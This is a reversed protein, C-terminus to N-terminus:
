RGRVLVRKEVEKVVKGAKKRGERIRSFGGEVLGAMSVDVRAAETVEDSAERM